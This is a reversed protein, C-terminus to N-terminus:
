CLFAAPVVCPPARARAARPPPAPPAPPPLRESARCPVRQQPRRAPRGAAARVMLLADPGNNMLIRRSVETDTSFFVTKGLLFFKSIGSPSLARQKEWYGGPDRVMAVISGVVPWFFGPPSPLQKCTLRFQVQELACYALSIALLGVVLNVANLEPFVMEAM